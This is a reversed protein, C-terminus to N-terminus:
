LGITGIDVNQNKSAQFYETASSHTSISDPIIQLHYDNGNWQANTKIDFTGDGSTTTSAFQTTGKEGPTGSGVWLQIQAQLPQNTKSNVIRGHVEIKAFPRKQCFTFLLSNLIVILPM